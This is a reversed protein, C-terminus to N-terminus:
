GIISDIIYNDYLEQMEPTLTVHGMDPVIHYTVDFGCKKMEGVMAESHAKIDLVEDKDCHFIYYKIRPLKHLNHIPSITKIAEEFTGTEHYVASYLIRTFDEEEAQYILDCAPCNAVCAVPKRNALASYLLASQGGMSGGSYVIPTDEPLTYHEFLIDIVQNTLDQAQKNM